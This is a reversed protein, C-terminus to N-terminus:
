SHIKPPGQTIYALLYKTNTLLYKLARTWKEDQNFSICISSDGIKDKHIRYPLIFQPDLAELYDGLQKLCKLFCIMATDFKRHTFFKTIPLDDSSHLEFETIKPLSNAQFELREIKSTSGLPHLKYGTFEFNLKIAISHLLQLVLGWAANIEDWEVTYSPLRGFRLDNITGFQGNHSICFVDNYVNTKRLEEFLKVNYDYQLNIADRENQFEELKRLFKNREKWFMEEENNLALSEKELRKIEEEINKREKKLQDITKVATAEKKLNNQIELEIKEIESDDLIEDDIHKLLEIYADREKKSYHLHRSMTDILTEACEICMPHNVDSISSITNFLHELMQQKDSLTEQSESQDNSSTITPSHSGVTDFFIESEVKSTNSNSKKHSLSHLFSCNKETNKTLTEMSQIVAQYYIKRSKPFLLPISELEESDDRSGELSTLLLNYTATNIDKLHHFHLPSRCQQCVSVMSCTM